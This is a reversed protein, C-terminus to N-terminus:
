AKRFRDNKAKMNEEEFNKKNNLVIKNWESDNINLKAQEDEHYVLPEALTNAPKVIQSSRSNLMQKKMADMQSGKMSSAMGSRAGNSRAGASRADIQNMMGSKMSTKEVDVSARLNSGAQSENKKEARM